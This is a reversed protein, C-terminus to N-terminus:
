RIVRWDLIRFLQPEPSDNDSPDRFVYAEIRVSSDGSQGDSLIRFVNSEVTFMPPPPPATDANAPQNPDVAPAALIYPTQQTDEQSVFSDGEELRQVTQEIGMYPLDHAISVSTMVETPISTTNINIKGEPHGHVTFLDFLPILTQETDGDVYQTDNLPDDESPLGFYIEPTIGPLLLLEEISDMPGNKCSFPPDLSEYYDSEGGLDRADDDADLWDLILDTPDEELGLYLMFVDRVIQELALHVEEGGSDGSEFILANLNIKGYEDTITLSVVDDNFSQIEPPQAWSEDLGDYIGGGDVSEEINAIRDAHLVSMATAVGSKAALYAEHDTSNSIVLSAEVHMKYMFDTVIASLLVVFLLVLLLAIGEEGRPTYTTKEHIM